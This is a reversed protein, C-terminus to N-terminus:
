PRVFQFVTDTVLNLLSAKFEDVRILALGSLKLARMEALAAQSRVLYEFEDTTLDGNALLVTWRELRERVTQLFTESDTIADDVYSSVTAGALDRVGTRIASFIENFDAM